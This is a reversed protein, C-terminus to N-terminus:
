AARQKRRRKDAAVLRAIVLGHLEAEDVGYVRAVRAVDNLVPAGEDNEWKWVLPQSVDLARAIETQYREGRAKTLLGALRGMVLTM